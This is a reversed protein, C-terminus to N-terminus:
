YKRNSVGKITYELVSNKMLKVNAEDWDSKKGDYFLLKGQKIVSTAM